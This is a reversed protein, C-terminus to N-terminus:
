RTPGRAPSATYRGAVDVALSAVPVLTAGGGSIHVSVTMSPAVAPTGPVEPTFRGGFVLGARNSHSVTISQSVSSGGSLKLSGAGAAGVATDIDASSSPSRQM